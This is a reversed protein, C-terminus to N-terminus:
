NKRNKKWEKNSWLSKWDLYKKNCVRIVFKGLGKKLIYSILNDKTGFSYEKLYCEQMNKEEENIEKKNIKSKTVEKIELNEKLIKTM